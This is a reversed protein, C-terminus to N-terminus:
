NCRKRNHSRAVTSGYRSLVVRELWVKRTYADLGSTRGLIEYSCVSTSLRSPPGSRQWFSLLSRFCEPFLTFATLNDEQALSSESFVGSRVVAILLAGTRLIEHTDQNTNTNLSSSISPPLASTPVFATRRAVPARTKM